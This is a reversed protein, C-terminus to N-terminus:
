TDVQRSIAGTMRGSVLRSTAVFAKLKKLIHNAIVDSSKSYLWHCEMIQTPRVWDFAKFCLGLNGSSSPIRNFVAVHVGQSLKWIM